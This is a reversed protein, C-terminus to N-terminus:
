TGIVLTGILRAGDISKSLLGERDLPGMFPRHRALFISFSYM